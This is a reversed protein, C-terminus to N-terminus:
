LILTRQTIQWAVPLALRGSTM